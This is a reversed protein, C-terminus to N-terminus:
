VLSKNLENSFTNIGKTIKFIQSIIPQNVIFSGCLATEITYLFYPLVELSFMAGAKYTNIYCELFYRFNLSKLRPSLTSMKDILMDVRTIDWSDYMSDLLDFNEGELNAPPINSRAYSRNIGENDSMWVNSLFFRGAYYTLQNNLSPEMSVAYEKNLIRMFMQTYLSCSLKMLGLNKTIKIPNTAYKFAIYAGEMLAYLDKMGISLYKTTETDASVDKVDGYNNVFIFVRIKGHMRSAFFPLMMPVKTNNAYVLVIDGKNYAALVNDAMPSIKTRKIQLLQEAIYDNTIVTSNKIASIILKNFESNKNFSQYIKSDVLSAETFLTYKKKSTEKSEQVPSHGFSYTMFLLNQNDSPM